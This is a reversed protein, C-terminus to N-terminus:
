PLRVVYGRWVDPTSFGDKTTEHIIKWGFGSIMERQEQENMIEFHRSDSVAKDGSPHKVPLTLYGIAGPRCISAINKAALHIYAKPIHMLTAACWFADFDRKPLSDAETLDGHIFQLNPYRQKAIKLFEHSNDIGTYSLEHGIGLFLPAHIGNACGIDIVRADRPSLKKLFVRFEDEHIFSNTKTNSWWRAVRTYAARTDAMQQEALVQAILEQETM